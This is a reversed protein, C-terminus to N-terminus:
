KASDIETLALGLEACKQENWGFVTGTNRYDEGPTYNFFWKVKWAPWNYNFNFKFNISKKSLEEEEM